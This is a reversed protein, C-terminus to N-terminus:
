LNDTLSSSSVSYKSLFESYNIGAEMLLQEAWYHQQPMMLEPIQDVGLFDRIWRRACLHHHSICYHEKFRTVLGPLNERHDRLLRCEELHPCQTKLTQNQDL